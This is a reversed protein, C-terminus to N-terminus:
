VGKKIIGSDCILQATTIDTQESILFLYRKEKSVIIYKYEDLFDSSLNYNDCNLDNDIKEKEIAALINIAKEDFQVLGIDIGDIETTKLKLFYVFDFRREISLIETNLVYESDTFLSNGNLFVLLIHQYLEEEFTRFYFFLASLILISYILAAKM